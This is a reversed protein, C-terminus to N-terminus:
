KTEAAGALLVRLLRQAEERRQIAVAKLQAVLMLQKEKKNRKEELRKAKKLAKAEQEKELELQRKRERGKREEEELRRQEELERQKREEARQRKRVNKDSLYATRDFDVKLKAVAERGGSELRILKMGKLGSMASCFATYRDYQIYADFYLQKSPGFSAFDSCDRSSTEYIGVQRVKGFKQFAVTLVRPCPRGESTSSSFWRVPLDSIHLTDPREGPQGDDFTEVGRDIFHDEWEKKTPFPPELKKAKIKLLESFGSLKMSKHNLLLVVKRMARLTEFEGEFQIRERSYNVVRLSQFEEPKSLTKIKEMVEWNSISGSGRIEPLKVELSIKADPKLFLGSPQYFSLPVDDGMNLVLYFYTGTASPM